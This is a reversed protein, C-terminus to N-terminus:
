FRLPFILLELVGLHLVDLNLLIVQNGRALRSIESGHLQWQQWLFFFFWHNHSGDVGFYYQLAIVRERHWDDFCCMEVAQRIVVDAKNMPLVYVDM